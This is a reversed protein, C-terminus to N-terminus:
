QTVLITETLNKFKHSSNKDLAYDLQVTNNKSGKSSPSYKWQRLAIKSTKDFVKKPEAKLVSVNDVSGDAKIDFKLMVSGEIKQEAAEIPYKPEIRKIPSVSTNNTHKMKTDHNNGAYSVASLLTVTAAVVFSTVLKSSSHNAKIQKIREFMVNKDGYENFSLQAFALPPSTEAAVLLAKSYNIRSTIHKRALVAHDCSIEQDRRFRFFALWALPHFWLLALSCLAILNWYMDNRNFHCIEHELILVQQDKSYVEFFHEPILLVPRILGLLMPSYAESSQYVALDEPLGIPLDTKLPKLENISQRLRLHTISWYSMLLGAGLGWLVLLYTLADINTTPLNSTVVFQQFSQGDSISAFWNPIEIFPVLLSLPVVLWLRYLSAAGVHRLLQEHSVLLIATVITFPIIVDVISSIM